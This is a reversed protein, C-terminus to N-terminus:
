WLPSDYLDSKTVPAHVGFERVLSEVTQKFWASSTPSVLIGDLLANLDVPVTVGGNVLKGGLPMDVPGNMFSPTILARVESDHAFSMRKHIFPSYLNNLHDFTETDYDIYKVKGAEVQFPLLAALKAFTSRICVADGAKAYVTWLAASEFKSMHWCSVYVQQRMQQYIEIYSQRLMTADTDPNIRSNEIAMQEMHERFKRPLSGEFPDEFRDSRPFFIAKDVLLAVLKSIDM